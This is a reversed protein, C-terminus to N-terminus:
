RQPCNGSVPTVSQVRFEQPTPAGPAAPPNTGAAPTAGPATAPVFAGIMQVRQGRYASVDYGNLRYGAPAVGGVTSAAATAAPAATGATGTAGAVSTAPPPPAPIVAGTVPPPAAAAIPNTVAPPPAVAGAQPPLTGSTAGGPTTSGVSGRTVDSLTFPDSVGTGGTVCGVLTVTEPGAAHASGPPATPTQSTTQAAFASTASAVAFVVLLTRKM